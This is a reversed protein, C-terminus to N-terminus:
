NLPTSRRPPPVATLLEWLPRSGAAWVGLTQRDVVHLKQQKAFVVAPATVRGNTV